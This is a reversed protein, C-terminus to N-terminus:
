AAPRWTDPSRGPRGASVVTIGTRDVFPPLLFRLEAGCTCLHHFEPDGRLVEALRRVGESLCGRLEWRRECQRCPPSVISFRGTRGQHTSCSPVFM